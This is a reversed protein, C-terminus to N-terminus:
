SDLPFFVAEEPGLDQGPAQGALPEPAARYYTGGIIGDAEVGNESLPLVIREGIASLGLRVFVMGKGRMFGPGTVVRRHRPFALHYIEPTYFEEMRMGRLSKGFARDIEEGALRGIFADTARDYKWSWVYRLSRGIEIPDIDRWAPMRRGGRAAVWHRAVVRLEESEIAAYFAQFSM